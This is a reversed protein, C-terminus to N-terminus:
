IEVGFVELLKFPNKLQDGDEVNVRIGATSRTMDHSPTPRCAASADMAYRAHIIM